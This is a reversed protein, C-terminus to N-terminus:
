LRLRKKTGGALRGRMSRLGYGHPLDVWFGFAFHGDGNEREDARAEMGVLRIGLEKRELLAWSVVAAAIAGCRRRLPGRGFEAREDAEFARAPVSPEAHM